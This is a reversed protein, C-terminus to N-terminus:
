NETLNDLNRRYDTPTMGVEEQFIKSFYRSNWFGVKSAIEYIYDNTFLLLEKAREIRLRRLYDCFNDGVYEPFVRSLYSMSVGAHTAVEELSLDRHYNIQIYALAKRVALTIRPYSALVRRKKTFQLYHTALDKIMRQWGYISDVEEIAELYDWEEEVVEEWRVKYEFFVWHLTHILDLVLWRAEEPTLCIPIINTFVNDLFCDISKEEADICAERLIEEWTGLLKRIDPAPEQLVNSIDKTTICRKDPYYLRLLNMEKVEKFMGPLDLYGSVNLSFSITLNTTIKRELYYAVERIQEVEKQEPRAGKQSSLIVIFDSQKLNILHWDWKWDPIIQTGETLMKHIIREM